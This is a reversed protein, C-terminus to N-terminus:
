NRLSDKLSRTKYQKEKLYLLIKRFENKSIYGPILAITKGNSETLLTTPYGRVGNIKTIEPNKDADVRIYIFEKKLVNSIEKDSLVNHDMASCYGCYKSFFYIVMAKDEETARKKGESLPSAYVITHGLFIISLLLVVKLHNKLM